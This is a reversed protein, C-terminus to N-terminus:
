RLCGIIMNFIGINGAADYHIGDELVYGGQRVVSYTDIWYVNALQSPMTANFSDIPIIKDEFPHDVPNLSVYYVRAGRNVWEAAKENVLRAYSYISGPDNVGMCIVVKTGAGIMPDATPVGTEAFWSYNAGYQCVWGCGAGGTADRMQCTRSDGIFLIGGNTKAAKPAPAAQAQAPAPQATAPAAPATQSQAQAQQAAAQEAAAKEAAAKRAAEIAALDVKELGLRSGHVYATEGKYTVQKWGTTKSEGIVSIEENLALYGLKNTSTSPGKRVNVSSTAYMTVPKDFVRIDDNKSDAKDDKAEAKADDAKSDDAKADDAKSDDAKSDDKTDEATDKSDKDADKKEESDKEAESDEETKSDDKVEANEKSEETEEKEEAEKEESAKNEVNEKAEATEEIAETESDAQVETDQVPPELTTATNGCASTLGLCLVLGIIALINRRKM